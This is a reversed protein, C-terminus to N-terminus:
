SARRMRIVTEVEIEGPSLSALQVLLHPWLPEIALLVDLQMREVGNLWRGAQRPDFDQGKVASIADALEDLNWGLAQRARDLCRGIRLRKEEVEPKRLDASGHIESRVLHAAPVVSAITRSM